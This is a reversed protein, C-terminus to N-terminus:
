ASARERSAWCAWWLRGGMCGHLEARPVCCAGGVEHHVCIMGVDEEVGPLGVLLARRAGVATM